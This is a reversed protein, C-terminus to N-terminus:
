FIKSFLVGDLGRALMIVNDDDIHIHFIGPESAMFELGEQPRQTYYTSSGTGSIVQRIDDHEIYQLTHDHGSLIAQVNYKKYLEKVKSFYEKPVNNHYGASYIPHHAVLWKKPNDKSLLSAALEWKEDTMATSDLVVFSHGCLEFEYVYDPMNWWALDIKTQASADGRHDHNGLSLYWPVDPQYIDQWSEYQHPDMENVIGEPYFNDGVSIVADKPLESILQAVNKQFFQGRRGWDGIVIFSCLASRLM